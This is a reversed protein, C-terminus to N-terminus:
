EKLMFELLMVDHTTLKVENLEDLKIPDIDLENEIELLEKIKKNYEDLNEIDVRNPMPKGKSNKPVIVKCDKDKKACEIAVSNKLENVNKMNIDKM